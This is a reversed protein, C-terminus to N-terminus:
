RLRLFRIDERLQRIREIERLTLERERIVRDVRQEIEDLPNQRRVGYDALGDVLAIRRFLNRILDPTDDDPHWSDEPEWDGFATVPM